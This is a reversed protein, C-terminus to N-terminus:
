FGAVRTSRRIRSRAVARDDVIEVEQSDVESKLLNMLRKREDMQGPDEYTVRVSEETANGHRLLSTNADDFTEFPSLSQGFAPVPLILMDSIQADSSQRSQPQANSNLHTRLFHTTSSMSVYRQDTHGRASAQDVVAAVLVLLAM